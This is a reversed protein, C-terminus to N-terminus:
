QAATTTANVVRRWRGDRREFVTLRATRTAFRAGDRTGGSAVVEVLWAMTGDASVGYRPPEIDDWRDFATSKLLGGFRERWAAFTEEQVQGGAIALEREGIHPAILDANGELFARRTAEHVDLLDDPDSV